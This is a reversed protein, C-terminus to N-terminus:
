AIKGVQTIERTNPVTRCRRDHFVNKTLNSFPQYTM